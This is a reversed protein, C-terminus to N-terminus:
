RRARGVAELEKLIRDRHAVHCVQLQCYSDLLDVALSTDHGALALEGIIEVQRAIHREGLAVHQEAEALHQRVMPLDM